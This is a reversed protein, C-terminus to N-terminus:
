STLGEISLHAFLIAIAIKRSTISLLLFFSWVIPPNETLRQDGTTVFMETQKIYWTPIISLLRKILCNHHM